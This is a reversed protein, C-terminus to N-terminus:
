LAASISRREFSKAATFARFRFADAALFRLIGLWIIWSLM